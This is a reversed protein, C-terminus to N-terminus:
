SRARGEFAKLESTVVLEDSAIVTKIKVLPMELFERDHMIEEFHQAVYSM